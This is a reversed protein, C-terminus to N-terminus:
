DQRLASMPDIRTARAAPIWCAMAAALLVLCAAIWVTAANGTGLGVIVGQLAHMLALASLTGVGLGMAVNGFGQRFILAHVSGRTAGLAMRVGIEQTRRSTTYSTVGYIGAVSMLLALCATVALLTTMFRRDAVSDSILSRMSVSLLVPQDPDVSAIARQVAKRIDAMPRNTRVVLFDANELAGGSLYVNFGPSGDLDAHHVSSVVGIVQKWNNPDEATCDVCIQRGVASSGPFLRGAMLDNIMAADSSDKMDEERFWRGAVLHVGLTELYQGGVADIEAIFRNNSELAAARTTTIFGGHNEGSFPLADVTGASDVGPISRVANLFRRYIRGRQEPTKYREPEPLVVSALIRNAEFGPDTRLSNVFNGLLQGGVLVLAVTIAVEGIVLAARTRDQRGSAAGRNGLDHLAIPTASGAARLAPVLGFLIGNALALILAFALITGDPRAAALRPISVPSIAPLIAWAAVTLAYGGFGGLAALVCSETLLQRVVRARGAGIAVRVSVERRRALGRALLLNAVNACGILLFMVAAAMLFWLANPANGVVRDWLFSASLIRDRNTNPFERALTAGISALDQRARILSVGPRLRAVAGLGGTTAEPGGTGLPAWFEVYPSPTHTAARRLPFNFGPRMVGIVLCGHGNIRVTQGVIRRDANFRRIWLGYSLILEEIHGPQDEEPLINRGLMPTVGLMPFLNATVRLGYLAEPPASSGGLDFVANRYVGVSEFTRTRRIIEQTDNWYVWDGHSRGVGAEDTRLQVLAAPHEYPLPRLLVAEIATFVVATAGVSLAISLLAIGTVLPTRRLLRLAIRIDQAM